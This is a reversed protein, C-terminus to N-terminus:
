CDQLIEKQSILYERYRSKRENRAQQIESNYKKILKHIAQAVKGRDYDSIGAFFKELLDAEDKTIKNRHKVFIEKCEKRIEPLAVKTLELRARKHRINVSNVSEGNKKAYDINKVGNIDLEYLLERYSKNPILSIYYDLIGEPLDSDDPEEEKEAKATEIPDTNKPPKVCIAGDIEDRRKICINHTMTNLYPKLSSKVNDFVCMGAKKIDELLIAVITQYIEDFKGLYIGDSFFYRITKKIAGRISRIDDGCNNIDSFFLQQAQVNSILANESLLNKIIAKERINM